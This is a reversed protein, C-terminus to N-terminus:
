AYVGYARRITFSLVAMNTSIQDRSLSDSVVRYLGLVDGPPTIAFAKVMHAELFAEIEDIESNFGAYTLPAEIMTSNIGDEAVQAYGDGFQATRVTKKRTVPGGGLQCGWKYTELAM